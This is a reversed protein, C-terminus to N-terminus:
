KKSSKKSKRTKKKILKKGVCWPSTKRGGFYPVALEADLLMDSISEGDVIVDAVIRFYKGRKMNELSITHANKLVSRVLAKAKRALAKEELCKGRMEPTDVGNIRVSIKHWFFKYNNDPDKDALEKINVTITDGDYNRVYDVYAEKANLTGMSGMSIIFAIAAILKKM